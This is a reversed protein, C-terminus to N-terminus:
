RGNRNRQLDVGSVPSDSAPGARPALEDAALHRSMLTVELVHGLAALVESHVPQDSSRM